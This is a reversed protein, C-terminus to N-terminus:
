IHQGVPWSLQQRVGCMFDVYENLLGIVLAMHRHWAERRITHWEPM